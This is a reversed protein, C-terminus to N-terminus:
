SPLQVYGANIEIHLQLKPITIGLKEAAEPKVATPYV